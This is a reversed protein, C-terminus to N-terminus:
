IDTVHRIEFDQLINQECDLYKKWRPHLRLGTKKKQMWRRNRYPTFNSARRRLNSSKMKKARFLVLTCKIDYKGTCCCVRRKGQKWAILTRKRTSHAVQSADHPVSEGYIMNSTDEIINRKSNSLPANRCRPRM